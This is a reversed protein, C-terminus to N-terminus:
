KKVCWSILNPGFFVAFDGTSKRDDSCSAWDADSFDSVFTSLSCRIHLGYKSTHRLFRLIRKVATWHITTPAHLYQCVKNVAFSIDLRSLTLYQLAGVISHYRTADDSGVVGGGGQASLKETSSLPTAMPKCALMGARCLLDNAYKEQSLVLGTTTRKVEIGLDKLAFDANLDRLLADVTSSSSSAVIIDDVYVLIFITIAGKKYYFL